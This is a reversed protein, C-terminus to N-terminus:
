VVLEYGARMGSRQHLNLVLELVPSERFMKNLYQGSVLHNKKDMIYLDTRRMVLWGYVTSRASDPLNQYHVRRYFSDRLIIM